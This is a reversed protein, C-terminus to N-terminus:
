VANGSRLTRRTVAGFPTCLAESCFRLMLPGVCRVPVSRWTATALSCPRMGQRGHPQPASRRAQRRFSPTFCLGPRPAVYRAPRPSIGTTGSSDPSARRRQRRIAPPGSTSLCAATAARSPSPVRTLAMGCMTRSGCTKSTLAAPRGDCSLVNGTGDGAALRPRPVRAMRGGRRNGVKNSSRSRVGVTAAALRNLMRTFM